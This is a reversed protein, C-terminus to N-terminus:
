VTEINAIPYKITLLEEGQFLHVHGGIRFTHNSVTWKSWISFQFPECAIIDGDDNITWTLFDQGQDEFTIKTHM